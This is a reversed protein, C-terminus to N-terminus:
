LNKNTFLYIGALIQKYKKSREWHSKVVNCEFCSAVCNNKAYGLSADVRDVSRRTSPKDKSFTQKCYYCNFEKFLIVAENKSLLFDIGRKKARSKLKHFKRTYWSPTLPVLNRKNKQKKYERYRQPEHLKLKSLFRYKHIRNMERTCEKCVNTNRRSYFEESILIKKCKSCTKM